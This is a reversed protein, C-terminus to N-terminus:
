ASVEVLRLLEDADVPKQMFADHRLWSQQPEVKFAPIADYVSSVVVIRTHELGPIRRLRQITFFGETREKMMVDCVIVDPRAALALAVGEDGDRARLVEHGAGELLTAISDTFDVDDDIILIKKM